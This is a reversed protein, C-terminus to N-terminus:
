NEFKTIVIAEKSLKALQIKRKTLNTIYSQALATQKTRNYINELVM